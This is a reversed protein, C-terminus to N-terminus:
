GPPKSQVTADRGFLWREVSYYTHGATATNAEYELGIRVRRPRGHEDSTDDPIDLRYTRLAGVIVQAIPEGVPARAALKARAAESVYPAITALAEPTHRARHATSFLRFAFDEFVVQSFAPDLQRLDGLEIAQQ